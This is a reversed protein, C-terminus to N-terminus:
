TVIRPAVGAAYLARQVDLAEDLRDALRSVREREADLVRAAWERTPVRPSYANRRAMEVIEACGPRHDVGGSRWPYPEGRYDPYSEPRGCSDCAPKPPHDCLTALRAAVRLRLEQSALSALESLASDTLARLFPALPGGGNIHRAAASMPDTRSM